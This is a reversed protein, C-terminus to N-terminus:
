PNEKQNPLDAEMIMADERPIEYFDKRIGLSAFGLKEYMHIASENSVRVELVMRQVGEAEAEQILRKMMLSGLGEKRRSKKICVNMVEAEEFVKYYGCYGLIEEGQKIVLFCNEERKLADEFGQRSWPISFTEKELETVAALDAPTMRLVECM